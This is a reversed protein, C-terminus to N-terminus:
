NTSDLWDFSWLLALTVVIPEAPCWDDPPFAKSAATANDQRQQPLPLKASVSSELRRTKVCLFVALSVKHGGKTEGIGRISVV